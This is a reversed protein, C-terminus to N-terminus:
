RQYGGLSFRFRYQRHVSCCGAIAFLIKGVIARDFFAGNRDALFGGVNSCIVFRNVDYQLVIGVFNGDRLKSQHLSRIARPPFHKPSSEVSFLSVSFCDASQEMGVATADGQIMGRSLQLCVRFHEVEVGADEADFDPILQSGTESGIAAEVCGHFVRGAVEVLQPVLNKRGTSPAPAKKDFVM